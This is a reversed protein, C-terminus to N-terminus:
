KVARLMTRPDEGEERRAVAQSPVVPPVWSASVKSRSSPSMGFEVLMKSMQDIAKNAIALYPSQALYGSPAKIVTGFEALKQEAEIWRAWAQCYIALAGTDVDAFLGVEILRKGLRNWEKRADDNLHKPCAPLKAATAGDLRRPNRTSMGPPKPKRGRM